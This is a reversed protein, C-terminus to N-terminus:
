RTAVYVLAALAAAGGVLAWTPVDSPLALSRTSTPKAAALDTRRRIRQVQITRPPVYVAAPPPPPAAPVQPPPQPQMPPPAPPQSLANKVAEEAAKLASKAGDEILQPAKNAVDKVADGIFDFLGSMQEARERAAACECTEGYM